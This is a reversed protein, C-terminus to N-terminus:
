FAWDEVAIVTHQLDDIEFTFEHFHIMKWSRYASYQGECGIDHFKM